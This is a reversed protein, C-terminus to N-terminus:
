PLSMCLLPIVDSINIDPALCRAHVKLPLAKGQLPAGISLFTCHHYWLWNALTERWLWKFHCAIIGPWLILSSENTPKEGWLCSKVSLKTRNVIVKCPPYLPCFVHLVLVIHVYKNCCHLYFCSAFLFFPHFLSGLFLPPFFATTERFCISM